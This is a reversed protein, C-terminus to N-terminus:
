LLLTYNKPLQSPDIEKKIMAINRNFLDENNDIRKELNDLNLVEQNNYEQHSFNKIKNIVTSIDGFYSFHWGANKITGLNKIKRLKSISTNLNKLKLIRPKNWKEKFLCNLNYYYMDQELSYIKDVLLQNNKVQNILNVNPIEDVDSVIIVDNEDFGVFGNAICDRQYYERDWANDFNLNDNVKIYIIKDFFRNFLYKYEEIYYPKEKGVFTKNSEVIVFFDVHDYLECLRFHLMTLENYFIFSDIIKM